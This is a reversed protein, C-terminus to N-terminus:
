NMAGLEKGLKLRAKDTGLGSLIIKHVGKDILAIIALLGIPGPGIILVNDESMVEATKVAKLAVSLPEILVALQTPVFPPIQRKYVDSAASSSSLTSRPPRRIM